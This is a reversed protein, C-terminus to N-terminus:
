DERVYISCCRVNAVSGNGKAGFGKGVTSFLQVIFVTEGLLAGGLRCPWDLVAVSADRCEIDPLVLFAGRDWDGLCEGLAPCGWDAAGCDASILPIDFNGAEGEALLRDKGGETTRAGEM